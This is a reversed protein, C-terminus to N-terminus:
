PYQESRRDVAKGDASIGFNQIPLAKMYKAYFDAAKSTKSTIDSMKFACSSDKRKVVFGICDACDSCMVECEAISETYFLKEGGNCSSSLGQVFQNKTKLYMDPNQITRLNAQGFESNDGGVPWFFPAVVTGIPADKADEGFISVFEVWEEKNSPKEPRRNYEAILAELDEETFGYRPEAEPRYPVYEAPRTTADPRKAVYAVRSNAKGYDPDTGAPWYFPAIVTSLPADKLDEGFISVFESSGEPVISPQEPKSRDPRGYKAILAELESETFGFRPAQVPRPSVEEVDEKRKNKGGRKEVYPVRTNAKGFDPDTGPPWYFPAIVTSLPADATNEGFISEFEVFEEYVAGSGETAPRKSYEAILAELEEETLGYRPEQEPRTPDVPRKDEDGRKEVYAIRTNAKGFDPDTGEPWYFPQVTVGTLGSDQVGTGFISVFEEFSTYETDQDETSGEARPKRVEYGNALLYAVLAEDSLPDEFLPMQNMRPADGIENADRADNRLEASIAQRAEEVEQKNKKNKGNKGNKGGKGAAEM